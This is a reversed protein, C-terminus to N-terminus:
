LGLLPLKTVELSFNKMGYILLAMVDDGGFGFLIDNPTNPLTLPIDPNPILPNDIVIEFSVDVPPGGQDGSFSDAAPTGAQLDPVLADISTRIEFGVDSEVGLIEVRYEGSPQKTLLDHLSM